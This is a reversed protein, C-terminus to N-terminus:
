QPALRSCWAETLVLGAGKFCDQDGSPIRDLPLLWRRVRSAAPTAVAPCRALHGIPPLGLSQPRIVLPNRKSETNNGLDGGASRM